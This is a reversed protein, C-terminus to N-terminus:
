DYLETGIYNNKKQNPEFTQARETRTESDMFELWAWAPM